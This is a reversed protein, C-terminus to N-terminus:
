EAVYTENSNSTAVKRNAAYAANRGFERRRFRFHFLGARRQEVVLAASEDTPSRRGSRGM